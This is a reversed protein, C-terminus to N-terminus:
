PTENRGPIPYARLNLSGDRLAKDLLEDPDGLYAEMAALREPGEALESPKLAVDDPEHIMHDLGIALPHGAAQWAKTGGRLVRVDQGESLFEEAAYSALRGDESNLVITSQGAFHEIAEGLRYRKAFWAGPVHGSRYTRSTELDIVVAANEALLQHLDGPSVARAAVPVAGSTSAKSEGTGQMDRDLAAVFVSDWGLRKLMLAITTARIGDDDCLVLRANRTAIQRDINHILQGGSVHRAGAIHGAEYEAKSRVDFCIATRESDGLLHKLEPVNLRQIGAFQRIHEARSLLEVSPQDLQRSQEQGPKRQRGSLEWGMTGGNLALVTGPIALDRLIQAGTLGRSRGACTMVLTHTCAIMRTFRGLDGSPLNVAGPITGKSFEASPRCDVVAVGSGCELQHALDEPEIREIKLERQIFAALVKSPTTLGSFLLLGAAECGALGTELVFVQSYGCTELVEAAREALGDGGDSCLVVPTAKRPVLRPADIELHSLPANSACLLHGAAFRSEERVDLVAFEEESSALWTKLVAASLRDPVSVAAGM